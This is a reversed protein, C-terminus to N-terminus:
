KKANLNLSQARKLKATNLFTNLITSNDDNLFPQGSLLIQLENPNFINLLGLPIVNKLGEVFWRTSEDIESELKHRLWLDLYRVQNEKNVKIKNGNPLLSYAIGKQDDQASSFRMMMPIEDEDIRSLPDIWRASEYEDIYNFM